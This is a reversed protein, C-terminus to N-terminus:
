NGDLRNKIKIKESIILNKEDIQWDIKLFPDNFSDRENLIIIIILM